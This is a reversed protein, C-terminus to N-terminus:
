ELRKDITYASGEFFMQLEATSIKNFGPDSLFKFHTKMAKSNFRKFALWLGNDDAFLLKMRKRCRGIFLVVDGAFPDLGM